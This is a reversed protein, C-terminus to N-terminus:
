RRNKEQEVSKLGSNKWNLATLASKKEQEVSKLGSNKWNLATLAM